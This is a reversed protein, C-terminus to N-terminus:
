IQSLRELRRATEQKATIDSEVVYARIPTNRQKAIAEVIRSDDFGPGIPRGGGAQNIQSLLGMYNVTSFRNIVSENGELEFGGQAFKIGGQEHSPGFIMGGGAMQRPKLKGGSRYSDITALQNAIIGVQIANFAVIASSAVLGVGGTIAALKTIAEATNALSQALAIRLSTKAAQKELRAKETQYAKEAELRKKNSEESDGIITDQIRQYRKELQDFQADFYLSTTQNLSNLVSQFAQIIEEYKQLTKKQADQKQAEADETEKVELELFLKLLKLKEEYSAKTIDLGQNALQIELNKIDTEYTKAADYSKSQIQKELDLIKTRNSELDGINVKYQKTIDVANQQIFGNLVEQSKKLNDTENTLKELEKRLNEVKLQYELVGKENQVLTEFLQQAQERYGEEEKKLVEGTNKSSKLRAAAYEDIFKKQFKAREEFNKFQADLDNIVGKEIQFQESILRKFDAQSVSVQARKFGEELLKQLNQLRVGFATINNEADTIRKADAESYDKTLNLLKQSVTLYDENAKALQKLGDLQTKTEFEVQLDALKQQTEFRKLDALALQNLVDLEALLRNKRDEAAKKAAEEADKEKKKASDILALVGLITNQAEAKQKVLSKIQADLGKLAADNGDERAIRYQDEVARLKATAANLDTLANQYIIIARAAKEGLVNFDDLNTIISGLGAAYENLDIQGEDFLQNLFAIEKVQLEAAVISKNVADTYANQADTARKVAEANEDASDSFLNIAIVVASVAVALAALPNAAIVLFLRKLIGISATDALNKAQQAITAKVTTIASLGEAAEKAAIAVTLLSQAKAAAEAVKTSDAGFVALVSQAAAFSATVASGVKVFAQFTKEFNADQAEKGAKKLAEGAGEASNTVEDLSNSAKNGASAATDGFDQTEQTAQALAAEYTQLTGSLASFAPNSTDKIDNLLLKIKEIAAALTEVNNIVYEVEDIKLTFAIERNAM